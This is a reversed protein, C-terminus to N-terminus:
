NTRETEEQHPLLESQERVLLRQLMGQETGRQWPGGPLLVVQGVNSLKSTIYNMKRTSLISNSIGQGSEVTRIQRWELREM